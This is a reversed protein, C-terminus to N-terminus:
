ELIISVIGKMPEVNEDQFDIIFYYSGVPLASGEFTGDWPKSAYDGPESEYLKAGWRNFVMVVNESYVDDLDIIEWVDNVGDGDPTFATPVTIECDQITITVQSAPGECGLLTETVYYVTTGLVDNPLLSSGLTPSDTLGSTLYWSFSGGVSGSVTM